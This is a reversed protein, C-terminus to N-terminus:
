NAKALELMAPSLDIGQLRLRPKRCLLYRAINGPGCALDLVRDDDALGELFLDLETSYLSVDMFKEQYQSAHANFVNVAAANYDHEKM